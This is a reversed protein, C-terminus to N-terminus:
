LLKLTNIWYWKIWKNDRALHIKGGSIENSIKIFDKNLEFKGTNIYTSKGIQKHDYQHTHGLIIVDYNLHKKVERLIDDDSDSFKDYLTNFLEESKKVKYFPSFMKSIKSSLWAVFKYFLGESKELTKFSTEKSCNNGHTILCQKHYKEIIVERLNNIFRLGYDHNGLIIYVNEHHILEKIDNGYYELIEEFKKLNEEPTVTFDEYKWLEFTDGNLIVINDDKLDNIFSIIEYNLEKNAFGIHLDSFVYIDKDTDLKIKEDMILM